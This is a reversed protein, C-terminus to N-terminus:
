RKKAINIFETTVKDSNALEAKRVDAFVKTFGKNGYKLSRNVRSITATSLGTAASIEAYVYGAYLMQAAKLRRSIEHLETDSLLDNIFKECDEMNNISVLCKCMYEINENTKIM